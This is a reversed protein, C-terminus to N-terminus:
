KATSWMYEMHSIRVTADEFEDHLCNICLIHSGTSNLIKRARNVM